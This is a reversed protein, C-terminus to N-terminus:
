VFIPFSPIFDIGDHTDISVFVEFGVGDFPIESGGCNRCLPPSVPTLNQWHLRTVASTLRSTGFRSPASRGGSESPRIGGPKMCRWRTVSEVPEFRLRTRADGIPTYAVEIMDSRTRANM